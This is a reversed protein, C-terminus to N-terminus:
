PRSSATMALMIQPTEASYQISVSGTLGALTTACLAIHLKGIAAATNIQARRIPAVHCSMLSGLVSTHLANAM